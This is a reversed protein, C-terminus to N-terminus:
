NLVLGERTNTALRYDNSYALAGEPCADQCDTCFLCRGMDLSLENGEHKIASPPCANVCEAWGSVCRSENLMPLGRFREPRPPAPDNPYGATRYGQQFRELLVNFM